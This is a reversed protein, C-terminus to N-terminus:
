GRKPRLAVEDVSTPGDTNIAAVVAVDQCHDCIIEMGTALHHKRLMQRLDM